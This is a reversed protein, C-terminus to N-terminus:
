GKGKRKGPRRSHGLRVATWRAHLERTGVAMGDADDSLQGAAGGKTLEPECCVEVGVVQVQEERKRLEGHEVQVATLEANAPRRWVGEGLKPLEAAEQQGTQM